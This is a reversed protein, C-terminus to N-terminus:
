VDGAGPTNGRQSSNSTGLKLIISYVIVDRMTASIGPASKELTSRVADTVRERLAMRDAVLAKAVADSFSSSDWYVVGNDIERRLDLLIRVHETELYKWFLAVRDSMPTEGAQTDMM